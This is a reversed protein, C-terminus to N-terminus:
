DKVIVTTGLEAWTYLVQANEPSLNVCGHSYPSGFSNHWYAGHIVAGDHTFYLNWPVGPLDYYQYGPINPLPGQMYRSPTKKFITFTGEPTPTLELGTSISIEMFLAEGDYAYLKQESQNVIIHKTTSSHIRDTDWVTKDGEDLLIKVFDAAVYWESKVREPYRLWEDFVIKYWAVGDHEVKGDVKLVMGNRLRAVVPYTIGPGGRVLLCEGEFHPGCGDTVEVYEFLINEIPLVLEKTGTASETTVIVVEEDQLFRQPSTSELQGQEDTYQSDKGSPVIRISMGHIYFWFFISLFTILLFMFVTLAIHRQYKKLLSIM